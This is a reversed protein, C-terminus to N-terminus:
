YQSQVFNDGDYIDGKTFRTNITSDIEFTYYTKLSIAGFYHHTHYELETTLALTLKLIMGITCFGCFYFCTEFTRLHMRM